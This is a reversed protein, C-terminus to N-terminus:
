TPAGAPVGNWLNATAARAEDLALRGPAEVRYFRKARGGREATAGGLMSTVFGKAELRELVTYVAGFSVERGLRKSLDRRIPVGYAESGLRLIGLLVAQELEGIVRRAM